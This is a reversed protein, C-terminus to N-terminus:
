QVQFRNSNWFSEQTPRYEFRTQRMQHKRSFHASRKTLWKEWTLPSEPDRTGDNCQFERDTHKSAENPFAQFGCPPNGPIRKTRPTASKPPLTRQAVAEHPANNQRKSDNVQVTKLSSQATMNWCTGPRQMNSRCHHHSSMISTRHM